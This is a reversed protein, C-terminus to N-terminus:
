LKKEGWPRCLLYWMKFGPRPSMRYCLGFRLRFRRLQHVKVHIKWYFKWCKLIHFTRNGGKRATHLPGPSAGDAQFPMRTGCRNTLRVGVHKRVKIKRKYSISEDTNCTAYVINCLDVLVKAEENKGYM